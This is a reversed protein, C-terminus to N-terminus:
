GKEGRDGQEAPWESSGVGGNWNALRARAAVGLPLSIELTSGKQRVTTLPQKFGCGWWDGHGFVAILNLRCKSWRVLQTRACVACAM